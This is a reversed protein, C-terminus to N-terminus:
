SIEKWKIGAWTKLLYKAKINEKGALKASKNLNLLFADGTKEYLKKSIEEADSWSQQKIALLLMTETTM